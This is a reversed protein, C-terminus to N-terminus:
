NNLFNYLTFFIVKLDGSINAGALFGSAAPFFVAFVSFFDYEVGESERFNPGFNEFM